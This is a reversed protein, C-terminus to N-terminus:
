RGSEAPRHDASRDLHDAAPDATMPARQRTWEDITSRSQATKWGADAIPRALEQVRTIEGTHRDYWAGGFRDGVAARRVVVCSLCTVTSELVSM